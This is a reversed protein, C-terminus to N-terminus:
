ELREARQALDDLVAMLGPALTGDGFEALVRRHAAEGNRARLGPDNLYATIRQSFADVDLSPLVDRPETIFRAAGAGAFSIVPLGCSMAELVSLGMAEWRSTCAFVDAARYWPWPDPQPGPFSVVDGLKLAVIDNSVVRRSISDADGGIWRFALPHAVDKCLRVCRAAIQVFLDSGKILHVYGVGLVMFADEPIGIAQRAARREEDSPITRSLHPTVPPAIVLKDNPIAYVGTFRARNWESYVGVYRSSRVILGMQEADFFAPLEHIWTLVDVGANMFAANYAPVAVTNCVALGRPTLAGFAAAIRDPVDSASIGLRTAHDAAVCLPAVRAFDEVLPGGGHVVIRVDFRGTGAIAQALWLLTLPAGTRMANHSVLLVCPRGSRGAGFFTDFAHGM